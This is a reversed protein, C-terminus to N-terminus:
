VHSLRSSHKHPLSHWLKPPRPRRRRRLNVRRRELEELDERLKASIAQYAELLRPGLVVAAAAERQTPQDEEHIAALHAFVDDAAHFFSQFAEDWDDGHGSVDVETSSVVHAGDDEVWRMADFRVGCFELYGYEPSDETPLTDAVTM